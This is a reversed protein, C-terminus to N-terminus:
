TIGRAVVGLSRALCVGWAAVDLAGKTRSDPNLILKQWKLLRLGQVDFVMMAYLRLSKKIRAQSSDLLNVGGLFLKIMKAKRIM